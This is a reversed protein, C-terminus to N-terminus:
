PCKASDVIRDTECLQLATDRSSTAKEKCQEYENVTISGGFIPMGTNITVTGLGDCKTDLDYEYDNLAFTKCISHEAAVHAMCKERPTKPPDTPTTDEESGETSGNNGAGPTSGTTPNGGTITGDIGDNPDDIGPEAIITVCDDEAEPDTCAAFAMPSLCLLSTAFLIKNMNNM